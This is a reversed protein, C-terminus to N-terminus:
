IAKATMPTAQVRRGPRTTFTAMGTGAKICHETVDGEGFEFILAEKHDIFVVAHFHPM